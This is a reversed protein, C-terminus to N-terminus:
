YGGQNGKAAGKKATRRACGQAWAHDPYGYWAYPNPPVAGWADLSSPMLVAAVAAVTALTIIKKLM